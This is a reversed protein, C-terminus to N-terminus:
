HLHRLLEAKYEALCAATAPLNDALAAQEVALMLDRLCEITETPLSAYYDRPWPRGARGIERITESILQHADATEQNGEIPSSVQFSEPKEPKQILFSKTETRNGQRNGQLIREALAKLSM